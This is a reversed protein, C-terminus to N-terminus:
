NKKIIKQAREIGNLVPIYIDLFAEISLTWSVGLWKAGVEIDFSVNNSTVNTVKVREPDLDLFPAADIWISGIKIDKM